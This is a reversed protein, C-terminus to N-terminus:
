IGSTFGSGRDSTMQEPLRFRTVWANLLASARSMTSSEEMPVAEPWRDIITILYRKGKSCLLPGVVDVHIHGFRCTPQPFQGLSSKTHRLVKSRQCHVCVRSRATIDKKMSHWVFKETVLQVTARISPNSLSHIMDFIKRRFSKPVFPRPRGTSIDCLLQVYCFTKWRLNTISSKAADTEQDSQQATCLELYDKGLQIESIEVRSLAYAVENEITCCTEAITSLHQQQRSTWANSHKSLAIVLPKHDTCITYSTRELMHRFHRIAAHVVLLERDFTSYNRQSANLQRSFFGHPQRHGDNCRELVTGIAINSADTVLYLKDTNSPTALTAAQALAEKVALCSLTHAATWGEQEKQKETSSLRYLPSLIGTASHIFRHYYNIM